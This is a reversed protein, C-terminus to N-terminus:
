ATPQAPAPGGDDGDNAASLTPDAHLGGDRYKGAAFNWDVVAGPQPHFAGQLGGLALIRPLCLLHRVVHCHVVSADGAGEADEVAGPHFEGLEDGGVHCRSDIPVSYSSCSDYRACRLVGSLPHWCICPNGMKLSTIADQMVRGKGRLASIEVM